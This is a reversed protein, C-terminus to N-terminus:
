HLPRAHEVFERVSPRQWQAAAYHSLKGPVPDDNAILRYLMIALDVDVITFAGFISTAGEPVLVDAIRLLREASTQGAATFPKASERYFISATTRQERIPLLDSRLWAQIQRARARDRLAEPYLRAYRPPPFAEELYEDIASSESLWFDGHQLAPVRGTLSRDRYEPRHHEQDQLSLLQLEFPLGKERLAVYSSLVYPSMMRADGHLILRDDAM